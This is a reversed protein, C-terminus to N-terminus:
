SLKMKEAMGEGIKVYQNAGGKFDKENDATRYLLEPDEYGFHMGRVDSLSFYYIKDEVKFFGSIYFHNVNYSTLVADITDLEEKLAKKFEKAFSTFQATKTTSSEFEIKLLELIKKM